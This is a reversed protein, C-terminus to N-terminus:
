RTARRCAVRACCAALRNMSWGTLRSVWRWSAGINNFLVTIGPAAANAAPMTIVCGGVTANVDIVSTVFDSSASAETPWNLTVNAALTIESYTIESPYINAGGFTDTWATM